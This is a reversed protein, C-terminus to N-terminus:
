TFDINQCIECIYCQGTTRRWYARHWSPSACVRIDAEAILALLAAKHERIARRTPMPVHQNPSWLAGHQLLLLRRDRVQALLEELTM